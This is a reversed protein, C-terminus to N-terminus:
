PIARDTTRAVPLRAALWRRLAPYGSRQAWIAIALAVLAVLVGVVGDAIYHNATAVVSISQLLAVAVAAARLLRHKTARFVVVAVILAWGVHLSPVAAYPNVFPAM